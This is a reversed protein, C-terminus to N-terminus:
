PSVSWFMHLYVYDYEITKGSMHTKHNAPQASLPAAQFQAPSTASPAQSPSCQCSFELCFETRAHGQSLIATTFPRGPERPELRSNQPRSDPRSPESPSQPARQQDSRHICLRFYPVFLTTASSPSYRGHCAVTRFMHPHVHCRHHEPGGCM